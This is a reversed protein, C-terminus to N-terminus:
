PKDEIQNRIQQMKMDLAAIDEACQRLQVAIKEPERVDKKYKLKHELSAWFDMAITRFQVEVIMHETVDSLFIPIEVILHLSRYGSEKPNEIYDKVELVTIDDQRTFMDM